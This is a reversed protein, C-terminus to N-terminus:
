KNSLDVTETGPALTVMGGVILHGITIAADVTKTGSGGFGLNEYVVGDGADAGTHDIINDVTAGSVYNYVEQDTTGTYNVKAVGSGGTQVVNYFDVKNGVNGM